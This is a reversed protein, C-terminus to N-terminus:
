GGKKLRKPTVFEVQKVHFAWDPSLKVHFPRFCTTASRTFNGNESERSM